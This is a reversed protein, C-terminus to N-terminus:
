ANFPLKLTFTSGEGLVSELSIEGQHLHAIKKCTSLGIGGVITQPAQQLKQFVQFIKEQHEPAIGLGNDKILIWLEHNHKQSSVEIKLKRDPSRYKIANSLINQFYLQMEIEGAEVRPLSELHLDYETENLAGGLNELAFNLMENLDLDKKAFHSGVRNHHLLSEIMYSMRSSANRVNTLFTLLMEQSMEKHNHILYDTYGEITKLPEQLDHSTIYNLELLQENQYELDKDKEILANMMTLREENDKLFLITFHEEEILFEAKSYLVHRLKGDPLLIRREEEETKSEKKESQEILDAISLETIEDKSRQLLQSAKENSLIVRQHSNLILVADPAKEL